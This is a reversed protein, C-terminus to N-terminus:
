KFSSKKKSSIPDSPDAPDTSRSDDSYLNRLLTSLIQLMQSIQAGPTVQILMQTIQAGANM